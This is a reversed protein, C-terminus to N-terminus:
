VSSLCQLHGLEKSSLFSIESILENCTGPKTTSWTFNPKSVLWARPLNLNCTSSPTLDHEMDLQSGLKTLSQILSQTLDLECNFQM